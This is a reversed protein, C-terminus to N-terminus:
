DIEFEVLIRNALMTNEPDWRNLVNRGYKSETYQMMQSSKVKLNPNIELFKNLTDVCTSDYDDKFLKFFIM